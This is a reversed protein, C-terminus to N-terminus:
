KKSASSLNELSWTMQFEELRVSRTDALYLKAYDFIETSQQGEHPRTERTTTFIKLLIFSILMIQVSLSM